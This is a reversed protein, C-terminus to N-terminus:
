QSSDSLFINKAEDPTLGLIAAVSHIERVTFTMGEKHMKKSFTAPNSGIKNALEGQTMGNEVIKGRLKLIDVKM